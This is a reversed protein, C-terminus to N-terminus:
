LTNKVNNFTMINIKARHFHLIFSYLFLYRFHSCTNASLKMPRIHHCRNTLTWCYWDCDLECVLQCGLECVSQCGFTSIWVWMCASLCARVYDSMWAWPCASLWVWLWAALWAWLCASLVRLSGHRIFWIARRLSFRSQLAQRVLSHLSYVFM